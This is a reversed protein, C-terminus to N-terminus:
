AVANRSTTSAGKCTFAKPPAPSSVSGPIGSCASCNPATPTTTPAWPRPTAPPSARAGMDRSRAEEALVELFRSHPDDTEDCHVDVLCGTREALDMLFKVSSVGQDRTYEFHPIGVVDAGMRIAEEM